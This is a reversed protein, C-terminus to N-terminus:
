WAESPTGIDLHPEENGRRQNCILHSPRLNLPDMALEPYTSVPKAHDASFSEPHNAPLSYDIVGAGPPCLWCEARVEECEDRFQRILKIYRSDSRNFAPVNAPPRTRTPTRSSDAHNTTTM